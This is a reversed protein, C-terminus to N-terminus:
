LFVSYQFLISNSRIPDISRNYLLGFDLCIMSHLCMIHVNVTIFFIKNFHFVRNGVLLETMVNIKLVNRLHIWMWQGAWFFDNHRKKRWWKWRESCQVSWAYFEVFFCRIWCEIFISPKKRSEVYFKRCKDINSHAKMHNPVFQFTYTHTTHINLIFAMTQLKQGKGQNSFRFQYYFINHSLM